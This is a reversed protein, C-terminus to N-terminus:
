NVDNVSGKRVLHGWGQATGKGIKAIIKLSILTLFINYFMLLLPVFLMLIYKNKSKDIIIALLTWFTEIATFIIFASILFWLSSLDSSIVTQYGLFYSIIIKLVLFVITFLSLPALVMTCFSALLYPLAFMGLLGQKPNFILHKHKFLVQLGGFSWRFRQKWLQNLEEPVETVCYADKEFNIKYGKELIKISLEMDEALTDPELGGIEQVISKKYAGIAGPVIYTCNFIAFGRKAFNNSIIYEIRQFITLLNFTSWFQIKPNSGKLTFYDNGAQVNGAVGMVKPDDFHNMLLEVADPLFLTDADMFILYEGASKSIGYNLAEGKGGNAKTFIKVQSNDGYMNKMVQYSNDPSGDDVAVIELNPYTSNLLSKITRNVVKEENYCPIIISVLPKNTFSKAIIKPKKYLMNGILLIILRVISLILAIMVIIEMIVTFGTFLPFDNDLNLLSWDGKIFPVLRDNWSLKKQDNIIEVDTSLLPTLTENTVINIKNAKLRNIIEPLANLTASQEAAIDHMLIHNGPRAFANSIVEDKSNTKWDNTDIDYDALVMNQDKILNLLRTDANTTFNNGGDTYPIRFYNPRVGTIEGIIRSTESIESKIQIDSMAFLALHSFSHNAITHGERVIRRAIEPNDVVKRGIVYFVAKTNTEKLIDLIKPTLIPTPGDDFSLIVKNEIKGVREVIAELPSTIITAKSIKNRDISLDLFGNTAKQKLSILTGEGNIQVYNSFRFKKLQDAVNENSYSGALVIFGAQANNGLQGFSLSQSNLQQTVNYFWINDAMFFSVKNGDLPQYTTLGTPTDLTLSTSLTQKIVTDQLEHYNSDQILESTKKLINGPISINKTEDGVSKLYETVKSTYTTYNESNIPPLSVYQYKATKARTLESLNKVYNLDKSRLGTDELLSKFSDKKAKDGALILEQTQTDKLYTKLNNYEKSNKDQLNKLVNDKINELNIILKYKKVIEPRDLFVPINIAAPNKSYGMEEEDLCECLIEDVLKYNEKIADLGSNLFEKSIILSTQLPNESRLTNKQNNITSINYFRNFETFLYNGILGAILFVLLLSITLFLNFIHKRKGSQDFFVPYKITQKNDQNKTNILLNTPLHM